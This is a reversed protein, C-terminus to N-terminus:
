PGILSAENEAPLHVGLGTKQKVTNWATMRPSCRLGRRLGDCGASYATLRQSVKHGFGERVCDVLSRRDGRDCGQRLKLLTNEAGCEYEIRM